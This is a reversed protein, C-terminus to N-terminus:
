ANSTPSAERCTVISKEPEYPKTGSLTTSRLELLKMAQCGPLRETVYRKAEDSEM